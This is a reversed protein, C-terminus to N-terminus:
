SRTLLTGPSGAGDLPHRSATPTPQRLYPTRRLLHVRHGQRQVPLIARAGEGLHDTLVVHGLREALRQAGTAQVVRVEEGPRTAAALGRGRPDQGARQVALTAGGGIRATLTLGAA